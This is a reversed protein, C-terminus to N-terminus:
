PARILDLVCSAPVCFKFVQQLNEQKGHEDNYYVSETSAALGVVNGCSDFVPAGSSGKAYDATIVLNHRRQRAHQKTRETSYRSIVGTTLSYFSTDPHSLVAVSSGVPKDALLPLPEFKDGDLRVIAIDERQSAALIEKIPFFQGAENMAGMVAGEGDHMVHYNTVLAGDASIVFGSATNVHWQHCKPCKYLDGVIFVGNKVRDYIDPWARERSAPKALKIPANTRDLQAQLSAVTTRNSAANWRELHHKLMDRLKDDDIYDVAASARLAACLLSALFVWVRLSNMGRVIFSAARRALYKTDRSVKTRCDSPPFAPSRHEL